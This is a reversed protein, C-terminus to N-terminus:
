ICKFEKLKIRENKQLIIFISNAMFMEKFENIGM